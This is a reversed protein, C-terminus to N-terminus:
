AATVYRASCRRGTDVKPLAIALYYGQNPGLPALQTVIRGDRIDAARTIAAEFLAKQEDDAFFMASRYQTGVDNGQRNPQRPDHLTADLSWFCGGALVSAEM